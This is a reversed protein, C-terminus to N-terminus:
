KSHIPKRRRLNHRYAFLSKIRIRLSAIKISLSASEIAESNAVRNARESEDKSGKDKIHGFITSRKPITPQDSYIMQIFRTTGRAEPSRRRNAKKQV